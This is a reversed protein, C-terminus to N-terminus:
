LQGFRLIVKFLDGDIVIEMKGKQLEMLSGAISLGLGNGEMHRSKDGRVFREELEQAPINLVYKSMNRFIILVQGDKQEVSLYVRSNEQAYKCVNNLLNDFVRWLHRGDALIQVPAEPQTVILKLEKEEMRQQYEGVAQSLIVGVECPELNVELNGTTAKSAEVLDELLKKLRRSQRVLVEAYEGVKPNETQEQCILDAYNIISTLPTKIDHSVNTILETKLHESKMREAVAMSIGQSLSNLNEGHERFAGFMGKTDVTYDEQGQAMAQSGKLLRRSMLSVYLLVAFLVAKEMAWLVVGEAEVFLICGMFELICLGLYALVVTPVLPIERILIVVGRVLFRIMRWFGRLIVYILTHRWWGGLKMRVALETLYLVSIGTLLMVSFTLLVMMIVFDDAGTDRWLSMVLYLSFGMALMYAGTLVDLHICNVVSPVIGERGNRHGAGCLLFILCLLCLFFCGLLIGICAYRLEYVLRAAQVLLKVEDEAPLELNVYVRFTYWKERDLKTGNLIIDEAEEGGPFRVPIDRTYAASYGSYTGWIVKGEGKNGSEPDLLALDLNGGALDAEIADMRDIEVCYKAYEVADYIRGSLLETVVAEEGRTYMNEEWAGILVIGSLIGAGIGALLLIFALIKAGLCGTLRFKAPREKEEPREKEKLDEREELREKEEM